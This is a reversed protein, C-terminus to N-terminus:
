ASHAPVPDFPANVALFTMNADPYKRAFEELSAQDFEIKGDVVRGLVRVRRGDRALTAAADACPGDMADMVHRAAEQRLEEEGPGSREESFEDKAM